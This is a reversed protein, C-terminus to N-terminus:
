FTKTSSRSLRESARRTREDGKFKRLLRSMLGDVGGVEQYSAKSIEIIRYKTRAFVDPRTERVWTLSDLMFSGNGAGIEYM